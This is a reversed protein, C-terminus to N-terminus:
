PAAELKKKNVGPINMLRQERQRELKKVMFGHQMERDKKKM